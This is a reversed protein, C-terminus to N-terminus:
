IGKKLIYDCFERVAGRGGNKTSIFNAVAKVEDVADNPCGKLHVKELICIDPLDDGMYAIEEFNINYKKMINELTEIKNKSGQHLETINLNKARHEVTGNNRATIIATIIGAKHLNVIGQGDKANFTKYEHGNEDFTLSGDTLVGDVDFAVLKIM